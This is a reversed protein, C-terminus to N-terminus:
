IYREVVNGLPQGNVTVKPAAPDSFDFVCENWGQKRSVKAPHPSYWQNEGTNFWAYETDGGLYKRWCTRLAFRDGDANVVGWGAGTVSNKGLKIGSDYIWLSVKVPLNDDEGFNLIASQGEILKLSKKGGHAQEESQAAGEIHWRGDPASEFDVSITEGAALVPPGQRERKVGPKVWVAEQRSEGNLTWRIRYEGDEKKGTKPNTGDWRPANYEADKPVEVTAITGLVEKGAADLLELKLTGAAGTQTALKIRANNATEVVDPIPLTLLLATGPQLPVAIPKVQAPDKVLTREWGLHKSTVNEYYALAIKARDDTKGKLGALYKTRTEEDFPVLGTWLEGAKGGDAGRWGKEGQAMWHNTRIVRELDAKDFVLGSNYVEEFMHVEGAQYGPREPHVGVWHKPAKGQIDWPGHPTWYQWVVRDDEPFHRFLMKVRSFIREVREKYEPKGTIRWLRLLVIAADASKNFPQTLMQAPRELWVGTKTDISRGHSHYSGYGAADQYYTGRKNWKEWMIRTSLDIYKQAKEGFQKKLAEDAMVVEAFEVLHRCLVADGVLADEQVEPTNFITNGIWGEYGDPDKKLKTCFFDYYKEAEELWKPNKFAKYGAIFEGAGYSAHWCFAEGWDDRLHGNKMVEERYKAPDPEDVARVSQVAAACLLLAGLLRLRRSVTENILM